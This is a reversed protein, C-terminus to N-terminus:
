MVSHRQRIHANFLHQVLILFGRNVGGYVLSQKRIYRLFLFVHRVSEALCSKKCTKKGATEVLIAALVLIHKRVDYAVTKETREANLEAERIHLAALVDTGIQAFHNGGGSKPPM